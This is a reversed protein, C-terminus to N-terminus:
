LQFVDVELRSYLKELGILLSNPLDGRTSKIGIMSFQSSLIQFVLSWKSTQLYRFHKTTTTWNSLQTQSQSGMSQLMGSKGKRWLRGSRAWVWTWQTPSAIWSGWGTNYGEGGAKLREWLWPQQKKKELSDARWMLHGFSQLNLKLMLGELSYDPNIEKLISQNSRATWPVILLRRSDWLKFIDTRQCQHHLKKITWSECRYM